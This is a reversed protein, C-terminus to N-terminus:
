RVASAGRAGAAPIRRLRDLQRTAYVVADLHRSALDNRRAAAITAPMAV